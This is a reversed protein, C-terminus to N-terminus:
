SAPTCSSEIKACIESVKFPKGQMKTLSECDILFEARLVRVLQGLNMEPVVVKKFRKLLPGLEPHFPHIWRLHLSSVNYGKERMTTTAKTIAGYTSGWGVLLLEGEDPGTLTLKGMDQQVLQTKKARTHCMQEHNHPDYSVNGTLSDKELGGVRYALGPTGPRVWPRALNEDRQYVNFNETETHFTTPFKELDDPDPILWPEAGNALYGDTMLMVPTMYKIAVRVAEIATYFCDTPTMAALIPMPCEGNRGYLCQLLDAQETKTPLGTSPGGRQVNVIVMPTELSAALGLTEGKLAIGPGSTGTIGLSGGFSAGLAAGAAAIEDEAQFTTVNWARYGSLAHLISSAPTIPYGAFFCHVDALKCGTVLGIATATNGMINRYTGPKINDAKRVRYGNTFVEATEGYHYGAKFVSINAEALEPKKAFKKRISKLEPEVPRNYMWFTLGLAFFNKCRVISKSDLGSDKLCEKTMGTIDIKHVKYRELSADDLPSQDYGAKSLNQKTFAATNVILTGGDVLDDLNTKLAAPNMAVLVDPQDGPTFVERAAFQLQFGSVGALTGAPARIEAPFDPFSALDNGALASAKTFESGTLQMGDGSDGCFRIVVTEVEEIPLAPPVPLRSGTPEQTAM